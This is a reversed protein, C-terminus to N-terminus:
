LFYKDSKQSDASQYNDCKGIATKFDDIEIGYLEPKFKEIKMIKEIAEPYFDTYVVKISKEYPSYYVDCPKGANRMKEYCLVFGDPLVLMQHDAKTGLFEEVSKMLEDAKENSLNEIERLRRIECCKYVVDMLDKRKKRDSAKYIEVIDNLFDMKSYGIRPDYNKAFKFPKYDWSGREQSYASTSEILKKFSLIHKM